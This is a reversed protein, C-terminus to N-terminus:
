EKNDTEHKLLEKLQHTPISGVIKKDYVEVAKLFRQRKERKWGFVNAIDIAIAEKTKESEVALTTGLAFALKKLERETM